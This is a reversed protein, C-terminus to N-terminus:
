SVNLGIVSDVGKATHAGSNYSNVVFRLFLLILIGTVYNVVEM